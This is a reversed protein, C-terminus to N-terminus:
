EDFRWEQMLDRNLFNSLKKVDDFYITRLYNEIKKNKSSKKKNFLLNILKNGFSTRQINNVIENGFPFGYLINRITLIVRSLLTKKPVGINFKKNIVGPQFEQNVDLFKYVTKIFMFPDSCLDDYVKILVNEKSFINLYRSIQKYYFGRDVCYDVNKYIFEKFSINLDGERIGKGYSSYARKIPNRILVIIKINGLCEYIKKPSQEDLLYEPTIEGAAKFDCAGSFQELYWSIDKNKRVRSIESFFGLEKIEPVFIEPHSRLCEYLWTTGARQAGVGLFSPLSSKEM